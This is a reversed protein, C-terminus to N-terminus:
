QYYKSMKKGDNRKKVYKVNKKQKKEADRGKTVNKVNKEKGNKEFPEKKRPRKGAIRM